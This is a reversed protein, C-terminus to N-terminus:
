NQCKRMYKEPVPVWHNPVTGHSTEIMEPKDLWVGYVDSKENYPLTEIRGAGYHEVIVRQGIEFHFNAM